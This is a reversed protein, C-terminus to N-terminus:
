QANHLPAHHMAVLFQMLPTPYRDCGGPRTCRGDRDDLEDRIGDETREALATTKGFKSGRRIHTVGTFGSPLSASLRQIPPDVEEQSADGHM